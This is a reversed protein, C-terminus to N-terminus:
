SNRQSAHWGLLRREIVVVVVQSVLGVGIACAITTWLGPGDSKAAAQSGIYGLGRTFASSANATEAFYAAGLALGLNFRTATFLSPLASPLRLHWLTEFRTADVSAFLELAAPDASRLGGDISYVFAPTTVLAVLAISSSSGRGAFIVVSTIYAVWPTVMILVLLPQFAAELRRSAALVSGVVVSVVLAGALGVLMERTTVWSNRLFFTPGAGFRNLVQSPAALQMPNDLWAALAAWLLLLAIVGTGTWFATHRRSTGLTSPSTRM